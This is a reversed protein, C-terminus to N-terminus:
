IRLKSARRLAKARPSEATLSSARKPQTSSRAGLRNVPSGEGADEWDASAERLRDSFDTLGDDAADVVDGAELSNSREGRDIKVFGSSSTSRGLKSMVDALSSSAKAFLPPQPQGRRISTSSMDLEVLAGGGAPGDVGIVPAEFQEMPEDPFGMPRSPQALPRPGTPSHPGFEITKSGARKVGVVKSRQRSRRLRWCCCLAVLLVLLLAIGGLVPPLLLVGTYWRSAGDAAPKKTSGSTPLSPSSPPESSPPATTPPPPSLTPPPASPPPPPHHPTGLPEAPPFLPSPLPPSPSPTSPAASPPPLPPSPPPPSPTSLLPPSPPPPSPGPIVVDQAAVPDTARTLTLPATLQHEVDSVFSARGVDATVNEIAAESAAENVYVAVVVQSGVVHSQRRGLPAAKLAPFSLSLNSRLSSIDTLAELVASANKAGPPGGAPEEVSVTAGLSRVAVEELVMTDAPLGVGISSNRLRSALGARWTVSADVAVSRMTRNYEFYLVAHSVELWRQSDLRRETSAAGVFTSHRVTCAVTRVCLAATLAADLPGREPDVIDLPPYLYTKVDGSEVIRVSAPMDANRSTAADAAWAAVPGMFAPVPDDMVSSRLADDPLTISVQTSVTPPTVVVDEFSTGGDVLAAIVATRIDETDVSSSAEQEEQDLTGADLAFTISRM